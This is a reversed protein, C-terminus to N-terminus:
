MREMCAVMTNSVATTGSLDVRWDQVKDNPFGIILTNAARFESLWLRLKDIPVEFELAADGDSMHFGTATATWPSERDFRMTTKIKAGNNLKWDDSSLQITFGKDNKFYKVGFWMGKGRTSMGCLPKGDDSRGGFAQWSGARALTSVEAQAPAAPMVALPAAGLLVALAAAAFRRPPRM